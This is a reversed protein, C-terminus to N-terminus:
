GILTSLIGEGLSMWFMFTTGQSPSIDLNYENPIALLLPFLSSLCIGFTSSSFICAFNKLDLFIFVLTMIGVFVFSYIFVLLKKMPKLPIFPAIFGSCMFVIWFISSYMTAAEKLAIKDIVAYSSIWSSFGNELGVYLFM